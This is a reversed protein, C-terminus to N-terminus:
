IQAFVWRLSQLLQHLDKYESTNLHDTVKIDGVTKMVEKIQSRMQILQYQNKMKEQHIQLQKSNANPIFPKHEPKMGISYKVPNSLITLLNGDFHIQRAKTMKYFKNKIANVEMHPLYKCQIFQWNTKVEQVATLLAHVEQDTWIHYNSNLKAQM